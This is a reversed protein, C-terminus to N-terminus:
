RICYWKLAMRLYLACNPSIQTEPGYSERDRYVDSAASSRSQTSRPPRRIMLFFIGARHDGFRVVKRVNMGLRVMREKLVLKDGM